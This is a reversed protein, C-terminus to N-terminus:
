FFFTEAGWNKGENPKMCSFFMEGSVNKKGRLFTQRLIKKEKRKVSKGCIFLFSKESKKVSPFFIRPFLFKSPKVCTTKVNEIERKMRNKM